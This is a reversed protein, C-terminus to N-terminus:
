GVDEPDPTVEALGSGDVAKGHAGRRDRQKRAHAAADEGLGGVDTGVQDALDLFVHGFVIRAIGGANGVIDAVIDAIYRAHAGIDELRVDARDDGSDGDGGSGGRGQEADQGGAQRLHAGLERRHAERQDGDDDTQHGRQQADEHDPQHLIGVRALRQM